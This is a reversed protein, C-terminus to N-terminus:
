QVKSLLDVDSLLKKIMKGHTGFLKLKLNQSKQILWIFLPIKKTFKVQETNCLVAALNNILEIDEGVLYQFTETPKDYLTFDNVLLKKVNKFEEANFFSDLFVRLLKLNNEHALLKSFEYAKLFKQHDSYLKFKARIVYPAGVSITPGDITHQYEAIAPLYEDEIYNFGFTNPWHSVLKDFDTQSPEGESVFAFNAYIFDGVVLDNEGCGVAHTWIMLPDNFLEEFDSHNLNKKSDFRVYFVVGPLHQTEQHVIKALLENLEKVKASTVEENDSEEDDDPVIEIGYEILACWLLQTIKQLKLENGRRCAILFDTFISWSM